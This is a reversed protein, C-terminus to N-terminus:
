GVNLSVLAMPMPNVLLLESLTKIGRSFSKLSVDSELTTISGDSLLQLYSLLIQLSEERFTNGPPILRSTFMFGLLLPSM